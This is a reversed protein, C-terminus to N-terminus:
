LIVCRPGGERDHRRRRKKRRRGVKNYVNEQYYDGEDPQEELADDRRLM